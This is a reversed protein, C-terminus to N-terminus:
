FSNHSVQFLSPTFSQPFADGGTKGVTQTQNKIFDSLYCGLYPFSRLTACLYLGLKMGLPTMMHYISIVSYLLMVTRTRKGTIIFLVALFIHPTKCIVVM